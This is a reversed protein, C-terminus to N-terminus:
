ILVASCQAPAKSSWEETSFLVVTGFLVCVRSQHTFFACKLYYKHSQNKTCLARGVILFKTLVHRLYIEVYDLYYMHRMIFFQQDLYYVHSLKAWIQSFSMVWIFSMNWITAVHSWNLVSSYNSFPHGRFGLTGHFNTRFCFCNM